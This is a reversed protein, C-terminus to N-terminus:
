GELYQRAIRVARFAVDADRMETILRLAERANGLERALDKTEAEAASLRSERDTLERSTDDLLSEARSLRSRLDRIREGREDHEM